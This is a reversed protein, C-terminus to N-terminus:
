CRRERDSDGGRCNDAAGTGGDLFDRGAGGTLLDRAPGGLLRDEGGQGHLKDRGEEGELRDGGAAGFLRDKGKAGCVRDDGERAKVLDNGGGGDIVDDKPTGIIKEDAATGVITPERDFCKEAADALVQREFSGIDCAIGGPRPEGRQDATVPFCSPIADLAPSGNFLAHTQTPGGRPALTTVGGDVAFRDAAASSLGCQAGAGADLAELNSGATALSGGAAAECNETGPSAVGHDLITARFSFSGAQAFVLGGEAPAGAATDASMTVHTLSAAGAAWIGGGRGAGGGGAVANGSVTSNTIAVSTGAAVSIGGGTAGTAGSAQNASVTSSMIAHSTGANFRIGGGDASGAASATNVAVTTREIGLSGSQVLIGAGSDVGGGNRIEVGIITVPPSPAPAGPGVEIVRDAANGDIVPQGSGLLTTNRRIDLDGGAALDEGTPGQTLVYAAGYNPLVITDSGFDGNSEQVAARLSCPADAGPDADCVDDALPGSAPLDATTTVTFTAAESAPVLALGGACAALLASVLRRM